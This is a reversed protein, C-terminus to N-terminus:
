EKREPWRWKGHTGATLVTGHETSGVEKPEEFPDPSWVAGIVPEVGTLTFVNLDVEDRGPQGLLPGGTRVSVIIAPFILGNGWHFDVIRGRTPKPM